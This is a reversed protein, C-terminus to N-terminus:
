DVRFVVRNRGPAPGDTNGAADTAEVNVTYRGRGLASPLLYSFTPAIGVPFAPAKAVDCKATVFRRRAASYSECRGHAVVRTLRMLVRRIGSPDSDIRGDIARPGRGRAFRTGQVIALHGTPAKRDVTGCLGDDGNHQCAVGPPPASTGGPPPTTGPPAPTGCNGDNGDHVCVTHPESRVSSPANARLIFTGVSPFTLTAGGNAATTAAVRAGSDSVTAGGAPSATGDASAYTLVSVSVPAGKQAITPSTMGLVNPSVFGAPCKGFCDPFFLIEDNPNLQQGCIGVQAPAHDYWFAWYSGDAAGTPHVEGAITDVLYDGFSFFTGKWSTGNALTALELARAASTGPCSHAPDFGPSFSSSQTAVLTPAILSAGTGEVRVTVPGPTAAQASAGGVALTVLIAGLVSRPLFTRM